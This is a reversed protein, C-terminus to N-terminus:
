FADIGNQAGRRRLKRFNLTGQKKGKVAIQVSERVEGRGAIYFRVM